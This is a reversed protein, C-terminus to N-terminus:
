PQRKRRTPEAPEIVSEPVARRARAPPQKAIMREASTPAASKSKRGPLERTQTAPATKASTGRAPGPLQTKLVQVVARYTSPNGEEDFRPLANILLLVSSGNIHQATLVLNDIARGSSMAKRLHALSDSLLGSAELSHGKAKAASFGLLHQIENSCWLCTGDVDVEWVWGSPGGPASTGRRSRPRPAEAQEPEEIDSFLTELQNLSKKDLM